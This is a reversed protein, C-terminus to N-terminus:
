SNFLIRAAVARGSQKEICVEASMGGCKVHRLIYGYIEGESIIEIEEGKQLWLLFEDEGDADNVDSLYRISGDACIDICVNSCYYRKVYVTGDGEATQFVVGRGYLKKMLEEAHRETKTYSNQSFAAVYEDKGPQFMFCILILICALMLKKKTLDIVEFNTQSYAFSNIM